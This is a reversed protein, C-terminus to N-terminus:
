IAKLKELIEQGEDKDIGTLKDISVSLIDYVKKLVRQGEATKNQSIFFQGLNYFSIATKPHDVGYELSCHYCDSSFSSLAGEINGKEVYLKGLTRHLLSISSTSEHSSSTLQAQQKCNFGLFLFEEAQSLRKLSLHAEALLLYCQQLLGGNTQVDKKATRLAMLAASVAYKFKKQLIHKKATTLSFSLLESHPIKEDTLPKRIGFYDMEFHEKTCYFLLNRQNNPDSLDTCHKFNGRVGCIECQLKVGRPLSLVSIPTLSM